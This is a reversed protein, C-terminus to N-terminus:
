VFALPLASSFDFVEFVDAAGFSGATSGATTEFDAAAPLFSSAFGGATARSVRSAVAFFPSPLDSRRHARPKFSFLLSSGFLSGNKKPNRSFFVRRSSNTERASVDSACSEERCIPRGVVARAQNPL